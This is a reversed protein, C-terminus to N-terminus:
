FHKIIKPNTLILRKIPLKTRNSLLAELKKKILEHDTEVTFFKYDRYTIRVESKLKRENRLFGSYEVRIESKNPFLLGNKDIDYYHTSTFHPKLYYRYCESLIHEYGPLFNTEVEIRIVRFDSKDVWIKGWKINGQNKPSLNAELVYVSKGGIKEEDALRFSFRSRQEVGLIQIPVLIPKLNYTLKVGHPINELNAKKGDKEMLIRKERITGEKRILQYDYILVHKESNELTLPNYYGGQTTFGGNLDTPPIIGVEQKPVKLRNSKERIEEDCVYYLASESLKMCYEACKDLIIQLKNNYPEKLEVEQSVVETDSQRALSLLKGPFFIVMVFGFIRTPEGGVFYPEFKWQSFAKEFTEEIEPYFSNWAKASVVNGDRDISISFLMRAAVNENKFIEPYNPYVTKVPRFPTQIIIREEDEGHLCSVLLVISIAICLLKERKNM